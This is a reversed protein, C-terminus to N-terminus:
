YLAATRGDIPDPRARAVLLVAVIATGLVLLAAGVAVAARGRGTLIAEDAAPETTAAAAVPEALATLEPVTYREGCALCVAPLGADSEPVAASKGCSPCRVKLM